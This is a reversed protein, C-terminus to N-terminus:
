RAAMPRGAAQSRPAVPLAPTRIAITSEPTSTACGSRAPLTTPVWLATVPPVSTWSTTPCPVPVALTAAAAVPLPTPMAPAPRLM